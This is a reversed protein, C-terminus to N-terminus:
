KTAKYKNGLVILGYALVNWYMDLAKDKTEEKSRETIMGWHIALKLIEDNYYDVDIVSPLGRLWESIANQLGIRKVQWDYENYFADFLEKIKTGNDSDELVGEYGTISNLIYAKAKTMSVKM